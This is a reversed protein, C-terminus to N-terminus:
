YTQRFACSSESITIESAVCPKVAASPLGYTMGRSPRCLRKRSVATPISRILSISASLLAEFFSSIISAQRTAAEFSPRRRSSELMLLAKALAKRAPRPWIVSAAQSSPWTENSSASLPWPTKVRNKSSPNRPAAGALESPNM